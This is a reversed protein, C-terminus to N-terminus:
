TPTSASLSASSSIASRITRQRTVRARTQAGGARRARSRDSVRNSGAAWIPIALRYQSPTAINPHRPPLRPRLLRDRTRIRDGVVAPDTLYQAPDIDRLPSAVGIARVAGDSYEAQGGRMSLLAHITTNAIHPGFIDILRTSNGLLRGLFQDAAETILDDLGLAGQEVLRMVAAATFPKALSGAPIIDDTRAAVGAAADSYGLAVSANTGNGARVGVWIGMSNNEAITSVGEDDLLQRLEISAVDTSSVCCMLWLM